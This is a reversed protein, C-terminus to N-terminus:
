LNLHTADIMLSFWSNGNIWINKEGLHLRQEFVTGEGAGFKQVPGFWKTGSSITFKYRGSLLNHDFFAYSYGPLYLSFVLEDSAIKYAELYIDQRVFSWIHLWGRGEAQYEPAIDDPKAPPEQICKRAWEKADAYSYRSFLAYAGAFDEKGYLAIGDAMDFCYTDLEMHNLASFVEAAKRYQGQILHSEAHQYINARRACVAAATNEAERIMELGSEDCLDAPSQDEFGCTPCEM